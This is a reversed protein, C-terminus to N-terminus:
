YDDLHRTILIYNLLIRCLKFYEYFDESTVFPSWDAGWKPEAHILTIRKNYGEKIFELLNVGNPIKNLFVNEILKMNLHPRNDNHKKQILHLCGELCMLSNAIAEEATILNDWHLRAKVFYNSTRLLLDDQISFSDFLQNFGAIHNQFDFFEYENVDALPKRNWSNVGIPYFRREIDLLERLFSTKLENPIHDVCDSDIKLANYSTFHFHPTGQKPACMVSTAFKLESRTLWNIISTDAWFDKKIRNKTILVPYQNNITYKCSKRSLEINPYSGGPALIRFTISYKGKNRKILRNIEKFSEHMEVRDDRSLADSNFIKIFLEFIIKPHIFYRILESPPFPLELLGILSRFIYEYDSNTLESKHKFREIIQPIFEKHKKRKYEDMNM